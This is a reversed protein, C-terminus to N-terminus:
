PGLRSLYDAAAVLDSRQLRHLLRGHTRWFGPRAATPTDFLVGLLYQYHQGALRPYTRQADGEGTAGHCSACDSAYLRAGQAISAGSGQGLSHTAPLHSIYAAVDAIAQSNELHHHDTFHQM